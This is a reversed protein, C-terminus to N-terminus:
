AADRLELEEIAFTAYDKGRKIPLRTIRFWKGVYSEDPYSKEMESRFVTNWTFLRAEGNPAKITSAYHPSDKYKRKQGEIAPLERMADFMQCVFSQGPPVELMPVAVYKAVAFRGMDVQGFTINNASQTAVATRDRPPLIEGTEADVDDNAQPRAPPLTRAMQFGKMRPM